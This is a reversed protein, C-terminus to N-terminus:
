KEESCCEYKWPLLELYVSSYTLWSPLLTAHVARAAPVVIIRALDVLDMRAVVITTPADHVMLRIAVRGTWAAPATKAGLM